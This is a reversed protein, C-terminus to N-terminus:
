KVILRASHKRVNRTNSQYLGKIANIVFPIDVFIRVTNQTIEMRVEMLLRCILLSVQNSLGTEMYSFPCLRSDQGKEQLFFRM